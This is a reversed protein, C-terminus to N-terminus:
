SAAERFRNVPNGCIPCSSTLRQVGHPLPHIEFDDQLPVARKCALCFAENPGLPRKREQILVKYWDRFADGVIYIRGSATRRHPCGAELASRIRRRSCGIEEALERRTYEMHLLRQLRLAQWHELKYRQM